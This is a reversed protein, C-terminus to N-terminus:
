ETTNKTLPSTSYTIDFESGVVVQNRGNRKARYLANDAIQLIASLTVTSKPPRTYVGISVTTKIFNESASNPIKLNQVRQSITEALQLAADADIGPLIIAFEEGGIRAVLDASRHLSDKLLRGISRLCDDGASHGFTDNLLKFHDVDMFLISIPEGSRYTRRLELDFTHEFHRRNYVGTLSDQISLENLRENAKALAAASAEMECQLRKITKLQIATEHAYIQWREREKYLEQVSRILLFRRGNLSVAYALLHVDEGSVDTQTWFDSQIRGNQSEKWFVSAEPLFAELFPLHATLTKSCNDFATLRDFWTPPTNIQCLSEGVAEFVAYDMTSFLQALSRTERDTDLEITAM